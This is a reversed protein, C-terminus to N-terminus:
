KNLKKYIGVPLYQIDWVGWPMGNEESLYYIGSLWKKLYQSNKMQNLVQPFQNFNTAYDGLEYIDALKQQDYLYSFSPQHFGKQGIGTSVTLLLEGGPKLTRELEKLCEKQIIDPNHELASVSIVADVTQNPIQDLKKIDAHYFLIGSSTSQDTLFEDMSIIHGKQDGKKKFFRKIASNLNCNLVNNLIKQNCNRKTYPHSIISHSEDICHINYLASAMESPKREFADVSIVKYGKDALLYQAIGQGAGADIIISGKPLNLHSFIWILDLIYHWGLPINMRSSAALIDMTLDKNEEILQETFLTLQNMNNFWM